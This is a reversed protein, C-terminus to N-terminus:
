KWFRWIKRPKQHPFLMEPDSPLSAWRDLLGDFESTPLRRPEEALWLLVPQLTECFTFQRLWHLAKIRRSERPEPSAETLSLLREAADEPTKPPTPLALGASTMQRELESIPTVVPTAGWRVMSLLRNRSGFITEPLERDMLLCAAAHALLADEQRKKPAPLEIVRDRVTELRSLMNARIRDGGFIMPLGAIVLRLTPKRELAIRFADGMSEEDLWVNWTGGFFLFPDGPHIEADKLVEPFPPLPPEECWSEPVGCPISHILRPWDIERHFRGLLGLQGQLGATQPTSVTSFVDAALLAERYLKWVHDRQAIDPKEHRCQAANLEALPDGFFDAWVPINLEGAIRCAAVAPMLSGVGFVATYETNKLSSLVGRPDLIQDPPLATVSEFGPIEVFDRREEELMLLSVDHGEGRLPEAFQRLRISPGTVAAGPELPYPGSGVILLRM